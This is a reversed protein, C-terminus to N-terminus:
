RALRPAVLRGVLGTTVEQKRPDGGRRIVQALGLKFQSSTLDFANRSM